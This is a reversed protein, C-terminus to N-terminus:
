PCSDAYSLLYDIIFEKDLSAECEEVFDQLTSILGKFTAFHIAESHVALECQNGASCTANSEARSACKGQRPCVHDQHPSVPKFQFM